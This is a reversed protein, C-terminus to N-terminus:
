STFSWLSRRPQASTLMVDPGSILTDADTTHPALQHRILDSLGVGFWRSQSLLAHAAAISQIRGDIAKVFRGHDRLATAHARTVAAVRALVNKVQHALEASLLDQRKESWKRRTIDRTLGKLRVVRDTADFEARSTQELWVEAGDPRIFSLSQIPPATSACVAITCRSARATTPVFGRSSNPPPSLKSDASAGHDTCRERQAAGPRPQSREFAMMGGAAVAEQLRVESEELINAHERQEAFL